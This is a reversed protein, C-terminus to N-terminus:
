QLPHPLILAGGEDVGELAILQFNGVPLDRHLVEILEAPLGLVPFQVAFPVFYQSYVGDLSLTSIPSSLIIPLNYTTASRLLAKAGGKPSSDLSALSLPGEGGWHACQPVEGLPLPLHPKAAPYIM